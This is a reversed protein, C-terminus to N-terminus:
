ESKSYDTENNSSQRWGFQAAQELSANAKDTDGIAKYAVSLYYYTEPDTPALLSARILSGIAEVHRNALIYAAGLNKYLGAEEKTVAIGALFAEEAKAHDEQKLYVYGLNSWAKWNEPDLELARGYDAIAQELKDQEDYSNGRKFYYDSQQNDLTIAITQAVIASDYSGQRYYIDGLQAYNDAFVPNSQPSFFKNLIVHISFQPKGKRGLGSAWSVQMHDPYNQGLQIQIPIEIRNGEIDGIVLQLMRDFKPNNITLTFPVEPIDGPERLGNFEFHLVFSKSEGVDLSISQTEQGLPYGPATLASPSTYLTLHFSNATTPKNGTNVLQVPIDIPPIDIHSLAGKDYPEVGEIVFRNQENRGVFPSGAVLALMAFQGNDVPPRVEVVDIIPNAPSVYRDIFWQGLITALATTVVVAIGALLQKSLVFRITNGQEKKAQRQGDRKRSM